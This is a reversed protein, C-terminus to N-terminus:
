RVVLYSTYAMDICHLNCIVLSCSPPNMRRYTSDHLVSDSTLWDCGIELGLGNEDTEMFIHSLFTVQWLAYM